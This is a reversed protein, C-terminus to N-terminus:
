WDDDDDMNRRRQITVKPGRRDDGDGDGKNLSELMTLLREDSIKEGGLQGRQAAGLMMNEVARAKDPKVLAIRALRARADTSMIAVLMSGRQDEAARRSDEQAAQAEPTMGGGMQGGGGQQQQMMQMMRQQRIADMDSDM